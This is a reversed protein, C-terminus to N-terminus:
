DNMQLLGSDRSLGFMQNEKTGGKAGGSNGVGLGGKQCVMRSKYTIFPLIYHLVMLRSCNQLDSDVFETRNDAMIGHVKVGYGTELNGTFEKVKGVVETKLAIPEVQIDQSHDDIIILFYIKGNISTMEMPGFLDMHILDSPHTM